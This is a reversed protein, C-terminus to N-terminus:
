GLTVMLVEENASSAEVIVEGTPDWAASNGCTKFGGQRVLLIVCLRM